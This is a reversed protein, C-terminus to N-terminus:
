DIIERAELLLSQPITIGLEQARTQNVYISARPVTSTQLAEPSAGSLILAAQEGALKGIQYFDAVSGVLDGKFPGTINCSFSPLQQERSFAIIMDEAEGQVLTDCSSYVADIHERANNLAQQLEQINNGNIDVIDMRSSSAAQEMYHLQITSNSENTRHVFGITQAQPVLQRFITLQDRVPVWNRTGVLNNGSSNLANILGVEVPYTVVSFVIPRNPILEKLIQTGPTTLSYVLDVDAQNFKRAIARQQEEDAHATEYIYRVDVGAQYGADALADKFGQINDGYATNGEPVWRSIGIVLPQTNPIPKTFWYTYGGLTALGIGLVILAVRRKRLMVLGLVLAILGLLLPVGQEVVYMQTKLQRATTAHKVISARSYQNRFKNWPYLRQGTEQDYYYAIANDAYTVLYGTFPEIWMTLSVDLNIGREEPVGPLHELSNTQDVLFDSTYRYTNVGAIVEEGDFHMTLETNYNVHWYKFSDGPKIHRPAFLYGSRDQDGVGAQHQWTHRNIGYDRAVTIIQKGDVTRVDFVNKIVAVDEQVEQTRYSFTTVSRQEGLFKQATEDYFNDLSLVDAYYEFHPQIKFIEPVVFLRSVVMLAGTGLVVVLIYLTLKRLMSVFM